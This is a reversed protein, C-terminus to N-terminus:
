LVLFKYGLQEPKILNYMINKQFANYRHIYQMALRLNSLINGDNDDIRRQHLSKELHKRKPKIVRTVMGRRCKRKLLKSLMRAQPNARIM